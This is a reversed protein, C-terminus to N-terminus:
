RFRRMKDLAYAEYLAVSQAITIKGERAQDSLKKRRINLLILLLPNRTHSV